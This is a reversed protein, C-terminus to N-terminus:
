NIRYDDPTKSVSFSFCSGKGPESEVWIKGGHKEVIKKCVALGIGTGSYENKHHLRQFLIFIKEFFVPKIGIGNDKVSFIFHNNDEKGSVHIEASEGSHYKLANGVLNQFLQFMQTRHGKILPLPDIIVTAKMEDIRNLFINKVEQLLVNTDIEAFDDKNSGVRSYELLDMILKKMREAGDVAFHIYQEATDDIQDEYKKKFLQLFSTIMRLPEQMDHSAIYAFRELEINSAALEDARYKLRNNLDLLLAESEKRETIDRTAGILRIANGSEDRIIYGKDFVHAYKGSKKLFRYEDEWYLAEPNNLTKLQKDIVRPLDDPHIKKDWFNKEAAAEEPDYGFLIKLGKGTRTIADTEVDWDWIADNTALAVMDYNRNSAKVSEVAIKNELIVMLLNKARELTREEEASPSKVKKYYIAFTGMVRNHSDMIPFSWCAQIGERRALDIYSAWRPDHEIDSVVIKEKLFAATGCSGNNDGIESGDIANCYDLSLDPSSWNYLRNGRLKLVSCIMGSHLEQMQKLYFELTEELVSDPRANMELVERELKELIRLNRVESVDKFYVSISKESPYVSVDAWIKYLPFFERFRISKNKGVLTQYDVHQKLVALDPFEDWLNKGIVEPEAKRLVTEATKNIFLITWNRDVIFFGDTVSDLVNELLMRSDEEQQHLRKAQELLQTLKQEQLIHVSMDIGSVSSIDEGDPGKILVSTIQIPFREGNKRIGTLVGKIAGNNALRDQMFNLFAPENADILNHRYLTKLETETYGFMDCAARNVELFNGEKSILALANLSNQFFSEYVSTFVMNKM